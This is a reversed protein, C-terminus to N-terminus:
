RPPQARAIRSNAETHLRRWLTEPKPDFITAATAPVLDWAGLAVERELQGRAWGSYGLYVRL